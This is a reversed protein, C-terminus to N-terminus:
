SQIGLDSMILGVTLFTDPLLGLVDGLGTVVPLFVCCTSHILLLLLLSKNLGNQGVARM